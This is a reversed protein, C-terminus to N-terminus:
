SNGIVRQVLAVLGDDPADDPVAWGHLGLWRRWLVAFRGTKWRHPFPGGARAGTARGAAAHSYARVLASEHCPKGHTAVCAGEHSCFRVSASVRDRLVSARLGIRPVSASVSGCIRGRALSDPLECRCPVDRASQAAATSLRQTALAAGAIRTSARKYRRSDRLIRLRKRDFRATM